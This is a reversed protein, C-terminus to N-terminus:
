KVEQLKRTVGKSILFNGKREWLHGCEDTVTACELEVARKLCHKWTRRRIRIKQGDELTAIAQPQNHEIQQPDIFALEVPQLKGKGPPNSNEIPQLKM